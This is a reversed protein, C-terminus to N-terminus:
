LSELFRILSTREAKSLSRFRERSTEAEGGHWMIAEELSKARGDHLYNSHGGVLKTLGIGWLPATRWEFGNAEYEPRNDALDPGMDHLLLDTYPFITQNSLFDYEHQGTVFKPRHCDTCKINYFIKRGLMVEADTANRRKPVALSQAYFTATKLTQEDIEPEDGLGDGQIQNLSSEVAFYPNTIGMDQNYAAATQQLLNPQGAKWGFRGLEFQQTRYNWVRNPKGSIGDQNLDNVDANALIDSERIAELLGLGVVLPAMRISRMVNSPFPIYPNIIDMQYRYLKVEDGDVYQRIEEIEQWTLTAEPSKGFVAKTQLQGGFGPVNLPEGHVDAGPISLRLLMGRLDGQSSPFPSKGNSVHCNECSNQNFIPGLGSNVESPATVFLDGFAVDGKFHMAIQEANLNAAPQQFIQVFAGEVSTQGGLDIDEIDDANYPEDPGCGIFGMLSIACFLILVRM